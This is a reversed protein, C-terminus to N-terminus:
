AGGTIKVQVADASVWGSSFQPAGNLTGEVEVYARKPVDTVNLYFGFDIMELRGTRWASELGDADQTRYRVAFGATMRWKLLNRTLPEGDPDLKLRRMNRQGLACVLEAVAALREPPRLPIYQHNGLLGDPVRVGEERLPIIPKEKAAAYVMEDRVWIHSTFDADGQGDRLTFFGIAADSQDIRSQVGPQLVQGHMGKGHVVVFGMGLLIPFVHDEIWQDRANYGYGVFIKM